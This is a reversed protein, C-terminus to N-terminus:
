NSIGGHWIFEAQTSDVYGPDNAWPLQQVLHPQKSANGLDDYYGGPGPSEWELLTNIAAVKEQETGLTRVWADFLNEFWYRDNLPWDVLDLICSREMGSALYPANVSSQYKISAFLSVCLEGIRTRLDARVPSSTALALMSEADAMATDAGRVHADALLVNAQNQLGSEYALREQTYKDCYARLLLFQWRWDGALGPNAAELGTWQTFTAGVTANTVLPSQWNQELGLIGAAATSAVAPGFFYRTYDQVIDNVDISPDWGCMSWVQKNVDDHAGDSYAIFGTTSPAYRNHIQAEQVPRPNSAERGQTHAFARDWDPVPYQCRVDHTIDPYSRVPYKLPTRSRMEELSMKAWPGYVVGALWDPEQTQLYNFFTDNAADEYGQNSVWIGANPHHAILLDYLDDIFQLVLLPPNSGPDGGPIFVGDLRPCNEYLAVHNALEQARLTANNLDFQLPTWVWYAIGYDDCIASLDHNMQERSVIFHPSTSSEFPINEVANAGFVILDRVYQEYQAVSWGDYTNALNRYGIQHGRLPYAPATTLDLPQALSASGTAWTVSRLLRGVGYLVGRADAGVVWVVTPGPAGAQAFLHYGEPDIGLGPQSTLAIVTGTAPWSTTVSWALGTRKQIEEALVVPAKAESRPLTGLNTVVVASTLDISGVSPNGVDAVNVYRPISTSYPQGGETVTLTVTYSGPNTYTHTPNPTTIVPGGDGFDWAWTTIAGGSTTSTDTFSVTLPAQGLTTDASFSAVASKPTPSVAHSLSALLTFFLSLFLFAFGIRSKM